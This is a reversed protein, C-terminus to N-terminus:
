TIGQSGMSLVTAQPARTESEIELRGNEADLSWRRRVFLEMAARTQLRLHQGEFGYERRVAAAQAASLSSRPVLHWIVLTEWEEDPPLTASARREGGADPLFRIPLYNRWAQREYSWCRLLLADGDRFFRRPAIWQPDAAGTTMSVYPIRLDEAREIAQACLAVARFDTARAPPRADDEVLPGLAACAGLISPAELPMHEPAAVYTKAVPDYVPPAPARAQYLRLDLAAQAPSIGFPEMLDRRNARGRWTLCRDLHLLRERQAHKLDELAM